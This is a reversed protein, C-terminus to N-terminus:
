YAKTNTSGRRRCYIEKIPGEIDAPGDRIHSITKGARDIRATEIKACSESCNGDCKIGHSRAIIEDTRKEVVLNGLRRVSKKVLEARHSTGESYALRPLDILGSEDEISELLIEIEEGVTIEQPADFEQIPIVGESKYGIDVLVENNLVRMVKGKIITDANFNKISDEYLRPLDEETDEGFAEKVAEDMIEPKVDYKKLAKKIVM